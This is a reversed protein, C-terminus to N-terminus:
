RTINDATVRSTEEVWKIEAEFFKPINFVIACIPIPLIYKILNLIRTKTSKMSQRHQIPYKVATYREHAIGVTMFVSTTLSINTIPNLFYPSLLVQIETYLNFHHHIAFSLLSALFMSDFLFLVTILQNFNNKTSYRRFLVGIALLNLVLGVVAVCCVAVGGVWFAFSEM